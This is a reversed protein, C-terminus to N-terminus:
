QIGQYKQYATRPSGDAIYITGCRAFGLRALADKMPQNDAHTDIRLNDIQKFCYDVCRKLMGRYLGASAIRHITGYPRDNLWSGDEIFAYTPDDGTILAFVMAIRGESDVGVYCVGSHIDSLIHQRSPYGDAWQTMNGTQRMFAKASDYIPMIADLDAEVARRIEIEM